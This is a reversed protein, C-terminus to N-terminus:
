LINPIVEVSNNSIVTNADAEITFIGVSQGQNIPDSGCDDHNCINQSIKNNTITASAGFGVMIGTQSLERTPGFGTLVVNQSINAMSGNGVVCVGHSSYESVIVDSITANGVQGEALHPPLGVLIGTGGDLTCEPSQRISKISAHSLDLTAGGMVGIAWHPCGGPGRVTLATMTVMAEKKVEIIFRKGFSDPSLVSPSKIITSEPGSGKLTLDKEVTVQETYEGPDIYIMDGATPANVAQQITPYDRPVNVARGEPARGRTVIRHRPGHVIGSRAIESRFM